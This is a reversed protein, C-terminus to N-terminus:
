HKHVLVRLHFRQINYGGAGITEVRAIGNKGTITGNLAKGAFRIDSADTIDGTIDKVRRYLDLMWLTAERENIKRFEEETRSLDMQRSYKWKKSFEKWDMEARDKLMQAKEELDYRTWRAVLEIRAAQLAEPIENAIIKETQEIEELAKNYGVLALEKDKIADEASKISGYCGDISWVLDIVKYATEQTVGQAVLDCTRLNKVAEYEFGLKKLDATKKEITAKKKEILSAKKEITEQAKKIREEAFERTM